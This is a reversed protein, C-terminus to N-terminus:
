STPWIPPTLTGKGSVDENFYEYNTVNSVNWGSLNLDTNIRAGSFMYSMDTVKSTDWNSVDLDTFYSESFM